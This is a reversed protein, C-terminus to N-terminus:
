SGWMSMSALSNIQKRNASNHKARLRKTTLNKIRQAVNEDAKDMAMVRSAFKALQTERVTQEFRAGFIQTEFFMLIKELSPEFLYSVGVEPKGQHLSIEASITILDPKQSVVNVFKGYYVHIEEYQVIHRILDNLDHSRLKEDPLDFYTFPHNPEEAQFLAVGRKGAITVEPSTNKVENLFLEFTSRIIPGFLGSNASILVAVTKGNHPLFTIKDTGSQKRKKKLKNVERAYSARVKEFLDEIENLFLRNRIVSDRTKKMRLSAVEEYARVLSQFSVLAEIEKKIDKESYM